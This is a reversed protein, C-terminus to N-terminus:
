TEHLNSVLQVACDQSEIFLWRHMLTLHTDDGDKIRFGAIKLVELMPPHISLVEEYVKSSTSLRRYKVDKLVFPVFFSTCSLETVDATKAVCITFKNTPQNALDPKQQHRPETQWQNTRYKTHTLPPERRRPPPPTASILIHLPM